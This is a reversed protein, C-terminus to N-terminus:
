ESLPVGKLIRNVEDLSPLIGVFYHARIGLETEDDDCDISPASYFSVFTSRLVDRYSSGPINLEIAPMDVHIRSEDDKVQGVLYDLNGNIGDRVKDALIQSPGYLRRFETVTLGKTKYSRLPEADEWEFAKTAGDAKFLGGDFDGVLSNGEIRTNFWYDRPTPYKIVTSGVNFLLPTKITKM